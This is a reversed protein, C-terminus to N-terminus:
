ENDYGLSRLARLDDSWGKRVRVWLRLMVTADLLKEIDKRAETGIQRIREGATGILIRKQGQSEVLISASIHVSKGTDQWEEIQVTTQYPIEQGLQRTVKERIIEAAMFRLSRDTIQDEDFLFPGQPLYGAIEAELRDVQQNRLASVPVIAAFPFAKRHTEIFPLLAEKHNLTDVKNIVLLVPIDSQPLRSVVFTDRETWKGAEVVLCIVDVGTLASMAAQNMTKNLALQHDRHMGPTDVFVMQYDSRTLVAHIRHRTTQPKRSTISVKQGVLHNMLTSKGVNPRGVIAVLGCRSPGLGSDSVQPM